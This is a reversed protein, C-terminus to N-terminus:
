ADLTGEGKKLKKYYKAANYTRKALKGFPILSLLAGGYDGKFIDKAEGVFSIEDTLLDAALLYGKAEINNQMQYTKRLKDAASKGKEKEVQRIVLAKGLETAPYYQLGWLDIGNPVRNEAYNYTTVHPFKESIPDVGTFRAVAPDYWRFGYDYLNLGLEDNLEKGNYRYRNPM